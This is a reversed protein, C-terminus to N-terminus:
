GVWTCYLLQSPGPPGTNDIHIPSRAIAYECLHSQNFIPLNYAWSYGFQLLKVVLRLVSLCSGKHLYLAM